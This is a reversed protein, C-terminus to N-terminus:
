KILGYVDKLFTVQDGTVVVPNYIIFVPVKRELTITAPETDKKGNKLAVLDIKGDSMADALEFPKELRVCGHSLFRNENAFAGQWSTAHLFISYPNRLYFKLVGLSNDAGTSQRFFYPFNKANYDQWNLETDDILNGKADVVDFNHQELYDYNESVKPLIENAAISQPVNWYPFTVISTIYSAIAPTPSSKRGVVTRMKLTLVDNKFYEVDASPINAIIYESSKNMTLYKRYDMALLVAKQKWSSDPTISDRLYKKLVLYDHDKCEFLEVFKSVSKKPKYNLLESVYFYDHSVSVEDYRFPVKCEQFAKLYNLILNTIQMDVQKAYNPDITRRSSLATRIKVIESKDLVLGPHDTAEMMDIWRSASKVYKASAFWYLPQHNEEYFQHVMPNDWAASHQAFGASVFCLVAIWSFLGIRLFFDIKTKM